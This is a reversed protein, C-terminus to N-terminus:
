DGMLKDFNKKIATCLEDLSLNSLQAYQKYIEYIMSNKLEDTEFFVRNLDLFKALSHIKSNKRLFTAGLSFYFNYKQAKQIQDLSGNFNHMIWPMSPKLTKHLNLIEDFARVCHIILPKKYKESLKIHEIFIRKQLSKTRLLNPSSYDLGTEGIILCSSTSIMDELSDLKLQAEEPGVFWPHIGCSYYTPIPPVFQGFVLSHLTFTDVLPESNGPAAHHHINIFKAYSFEKSAM